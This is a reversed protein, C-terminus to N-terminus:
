ALTEAGAPHVLAPLTPAAMRFSTSTGPDDFMEILWGNEDSGQDGAALASTYGMRATLAREALPGETLSAPYSGGTVAAARPGDTTIAHRFEAAQFHPSNRSACSKTPSDVVWRPCLLGTGLLVAQTTRLTSTRTSSM